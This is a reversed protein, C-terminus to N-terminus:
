LKPEGKKRQYRSIYLRRKAKNVDAIYRSYDEYKFGKRNHNGFDAYLGHKPVRESAKEMAQVSMKYDEWLEEFKPEWSSTLKPNSKCLFGFNEELYERCKSRIYRDLAFSKGDLRIALPVDDFKEFYGYNM